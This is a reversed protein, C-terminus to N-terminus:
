QAPAIVLPPVTQLSAKMFGTGHHRQHFHNARASSRGANAVVIFKCSIPFVGHPSSAGPKHRIAHQHRQDRLRM